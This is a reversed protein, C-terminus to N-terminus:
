KPKPKRQALALVLMDRVVSTLPRKGGHRRVYERAFGELSGVLEALEEDTLADLRPGWEDSRAAVAATREAVETDVQAQQARRAAARELAAFSTAPEPWISLDEPEDGAVLQQIVKRIVMPSKWAGAHALYFDALRCVTEPSLGRERAESVATTVTWLGAKRLRREAHSWSAHGAAAAPRALTRPEDSAGRSRLRCKQGASTGASTGLENEGGASAPPFPPPPPNSEREPNSACDLFEGGEGGPTSGASTGASTGPVQAPDSVVRLAPAEDFMVTQRDAPGAVPRPAVVAAHLRANVAAWDGKALRYWGKGMVHDCLPFYGADHLDKLRDLGNTSGFLGALQNSHLDFPGAGRAAWVLLLAVAAAKNAPSLNPLSLMAALEDIALADAPETDRRRSPDPQM